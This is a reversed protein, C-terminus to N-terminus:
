PEFVQWANHATDFGDNQVAYATFTLTPNEAMSGLLEEAVTDHVTICDNKLVPFVANEAPSEVTRYYVGGHGALATWGDAIAYTCFTDFAASKEVKVFLFCTESGAVVTVRPDKSVTAGPLLKYEEGTTETLRVVVHGVTFTNEVANSSSVLYAVTAGVGVTLLFASLMILWFLSKRM